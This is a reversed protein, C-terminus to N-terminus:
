NLIFIKNNNVKHTVFNYFYYGMNIKWLIKKNRLIENVIIKNYSINEVLLLKFNKSLMKIIKLFGDIFYNESLTYYSGVCEISSQEKYFTKANKFLYICIPKNYRLVFGVILVNNKIQNYINTLNPVIFYNFKKKIENLYHYLIKINATNIFVYKLEPNNYTLNYYKLITEISVVHCKYKVFPVIFNQKGERKFLYIPSISEKRTKIYHTYILSEAINKKRKNKKVCLFDVYNINYKKNNIFFDLHRTTICGNLGGYLSYKLSFYSHKGFLCFIDEFNPNYKVNKEKLYHQNILCHMLMKEENKLKEFSNFYLNFDYFKVNISPIKKEVIGCPKIWNFINYYHFVPQQSWFRYKIKIYIYLIVLFLICGLIFNYLFYFCIDRFNYNDVNVYNKLNLYKMFDFKETKLNQNSNQNLNPNQCLIPNQNLNINQVYPYM